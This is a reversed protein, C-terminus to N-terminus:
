KVAGLGRVKRITEIATEYGACTTGMREKEVTLAHVLEELAALLYPAGAHVDLVSQMTTGRLQQPEHPVAVRSSEIATFLCPPPLGVHVPSTAHVM